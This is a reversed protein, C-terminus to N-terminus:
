AGRMGHTPINFVTRCTFRKLAYEMAFVVYAVVIRITFKSKGYQRPFFVYPIESFTLQGKSAMLIDALIKYGAGRLQPAVSLFFEKKLMFYGSLPDCVDVRILLRTLLTAGKSLMARYHTWKGISSGDMYRSAIVVDLKKRKLQTLMLPLVSADHQMDADMVAVYGAEAMLMGEICASSLGRRGKRCILRVRMDEAAEQAVCVATRDPSDDDVFIVEWDLGELRLRLQDMLLHINDRENYTPIVISLDRMIKEDKM